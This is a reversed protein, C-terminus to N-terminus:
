PTKLTATDGVSYKGKRNKEFLTDIVTVTATDRLLIGFGKGDHIRSRAITGNFADGIEVVADGAACCVDLDEIGGGAGTLVLGRHGAGALSLRTRDRGAGKLTIAKTIPELAEAFDGPGLWVSENAEAQQLAERLSAYELEKAPRYAAREPVEAPSGYHITKPSSSPASSGHASPPMSAPSPAAGAAADAGAAAAGAQPTGHAAANGRPAPSDGRQAGNAPDAVGAKPTLSGKNAKANPDTADHQGAPATGTLSTLWAAIAQRQWSGTALLVLVAGGIAGVLAPHHRLYALTSPGTSVSSPSLDAPTPASARGEQGGAGAGAAANAGNGAIAITRRPDHSPSTPVTETIVRVAAATYNDKLQSGQARLRAELRELWADADESACYDIELATDDLHEWFGDTCLLFADDRCLTSPGGITAPTPEGEKGLSRLLRSRDEHAGQEHQQIQGGDVLAQSVSHDRTRAVVRNGSLQYLRSDGVHGWVAERGNSILVVITSRMQALSADSRQAALLAEQAQDVHRQVADASVAPQERFSRLATEVVLKSAIAGGRHGGLGDAVVWCTTNVDPLQLSDVYDENASRGGTRTVSTADFSM